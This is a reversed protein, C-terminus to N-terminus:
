CKIEVASQWRHEVRNNYTDSRSYKGGVMHSGLPKGKLSIGYMPALRNTQVTKSKCISQSWSSSSAVGYNV